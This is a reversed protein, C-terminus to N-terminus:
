FFMLFSGILVFAGGGFIDGVGYSVYNRLRLKQM